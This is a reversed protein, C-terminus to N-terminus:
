VLLGEETDMAQMAAKARVKHSELEGPEDTNYRIQVNPQKDDFTHEDDARTRTNNEDMHIDPTSPETM